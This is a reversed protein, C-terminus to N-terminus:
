LFNILNDRDELDDEVPRYQFKMEEAIASLIIRPLRYNDDFKAKNLAGSDLAKKARQMIFKAIDPLTEEIKDLVQKDTQM